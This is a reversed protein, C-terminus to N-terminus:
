SIKKKYHETFDAIAKVSPAQDFGPGQHLCIMQLHDFHPLVHTRLQNYVSRKFHNRVTARKDNKKKVVVAFRSPLTKETRYLFLFPGSRFSKMRKRAAAFQRRTFRNTKAIM